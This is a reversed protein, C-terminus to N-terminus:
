LEVGVRHKEYVMIFIYMYDIPFFLLKMTFMKGYLSITKTHRHNKKFLNKIYFEHRENRNKQANNVVPISPINIRYFFLPHSKIHDKPIANLM